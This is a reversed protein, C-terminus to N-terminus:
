QWTYKQFTNFTDVTNSCEPKKSKIVKRYESVFYMFGISDISPFMSILAYIWGTQFSMELDLIPSLLVFVAPFVFLVTPVITQVILARLFQKHIKKNAVSVNKFGQNMVLHM